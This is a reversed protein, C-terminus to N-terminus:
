FRVQRLGSRRGLSWTLSAAALLALLGGGDFIIFRTVAATIQPFGPPFNVLLLSEGLLGIAQMAIAECLSVRQRVPHSAAVAYPVCWMLFLLGLARMMGDGVPGALGFSPAFQGPSILFVLAAQLNSLLVLGVLGRGLWLRVVEGRM